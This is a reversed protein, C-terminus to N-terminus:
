TFIKTAVAPMIAAIPSKKPRDPRDFFAVISKRVESYVTEENGVKGEQQNLLLGEQIIAECILDPIEGEWIWYMPDYNM